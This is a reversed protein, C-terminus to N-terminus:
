PLVGVVEFTNLITDVADWDAENVITAELHIIFAFQDEISVAALQFQTAGGPGGCKTFLDYKGRYLADQYDYRGEYECQDLYTEAFYDLLQLYGIQRAYDDSASFSVGPVDWTSSYGNLDPSASIGGGVVEDDFDYWPSGDIDVWTSPVQMRISNYDDYVWVYDSYGGSSSDSFSTAAEPLPAIINFSNLIQDLADWDTDSVIQVILSVVLASPDDAPVATLVLLASNTGGCNGYLEYSGTFVDDAYSNVEDLSCVEDLGNALQALYAEPGGVSAANAVAEFQVGPTDWSNNFNEISPAAWISNWHLGADDNYSTGDIDTWSDPISLMLVNEDDYVTMYGPASDTSGTGGGPQGAVSGASSLERGNIQGDLLEGTAYRLVEISLTADTGHTRLIDCYDAMSADTALVLGEMTTIIDGPKIGAKDAASGSAVSSVWIGSLSGDDTLIAVGNVGISDVNEGQRLRAIIPQADAGKIAFYQNNTSIAEAYNVGVVRGSSDVLPGGSNGPNITADHEIVADVSAWSSEGDAKAKSVIGKTLTFEPDGLPFGASYVELGVDVDGPHWELYPYGEGEIDIVALDSCESTALIRANRPEDEGAVWVKLLAAGTVVHNNTVAIGSPDIIFGSGSGAANVMMGMEPDVFTGTAEILVTAERVDELSSVAGSVTPVPAETAPSTAETPETGSSCGALVLVILLVSLRTFRNSRIM